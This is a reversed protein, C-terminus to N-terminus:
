ARRRPRARYRAGTEDWEGREILDEQMKFPYGSGDRATSLRAVKESMGDRMLHAAWATQLHTIVNGYGHAEGYALVEQIAIREAESIKM